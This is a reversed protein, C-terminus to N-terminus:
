SSVLATVQEGSRQWGEATHEVRFDAVIKGSRDVIVVEHHDQAWDFGPFHTIKSWPQM